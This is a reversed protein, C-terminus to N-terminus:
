AARRMLVLVDRTFVRDRATAVEIYCYLTLCARVVQWLLYRCGSVIGHPNPGCERTTIESSFGTIAALQAFNNPTFAWEHTLDWYRTSSGFPSMANPVMALLTGGPRLVRSIESMTAKLDDKSLHELINLATVLDVSSGPLGGLYTLIDSCTMPATVFKRGEEVEELCADVGSVRTYGRHEFMYLLEGCGCALDIVVSEKNSPLWPRLRRFLDVATSEYYARDARHGRSATSSYYADRLENTLSM